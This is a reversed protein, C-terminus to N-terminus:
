SISTVDRRIRRQERRESNYVTVPRCLSKVGRCVFRLLVLLRPDPLDLHLFVKLSTMVIHMVCQCCLANMSVVCFM